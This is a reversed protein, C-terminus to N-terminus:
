INWLNVKNTKYDLDGHRLIRALRAQILADAATLKKREYVAVVAAWLGALHDEPSADRLAHHVPELAQTAWKEGIRPCGTYGDTSDGALTQYMWFYDADHHSITRLGLEPKKPNYLRIGPITQLDKDISVVIRPGPARKPSPHSALTGLIDDGELGYRMVIKDAYKTQIHEDILSWLQPKPKEHRVFKYTSLVDKRFNHHPCSLALVFDKAKFKKCLEAIMSDVDARAKDEQFVETIDGDGDWDIGKTNSYSMQYRFVDADILLVPPERKM